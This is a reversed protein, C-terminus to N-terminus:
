LNSTYDLLERRDFANAINLGAWVAIAVVNLGASTVIASANNNTISNYANSISITGAISVVVIILSVIIICICRLVRRKM